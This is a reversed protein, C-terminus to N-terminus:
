YFMMLIVIFENYFEDIYFTNLNTDNIIYESYKLLSVFDSIYSRIKAIQYNYIISKDTITKKYCLTPPRRICFIQDM